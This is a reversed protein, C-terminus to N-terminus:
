VPTSNRKAKREAINRDMQALMADSQRKIKKTYQSPFREGLKPIVYEIVFGYGFIFLIGGGFTELIFLAPTM